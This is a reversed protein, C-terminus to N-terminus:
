MAPDSLETPSPLLHTPHMISCKARFWDLTLSWLCVVILSGLAASCDAQVEVDSPRSARSHLLEASCDVQVAVDSPRSARSHLLEASCDVQVAVDSPRSARSHLLEASCDVQVAVDSPRSARSHLLKKKEYNHLRCTVCCESYLVLDLSWVLMVVASCWAVSSCWMMVHLASRM